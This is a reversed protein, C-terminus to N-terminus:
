VQDSRNSGIKFANDLPPVAIDEGSAISENACAAIALSWYGDEATASAGQRSPGTEFLSQMLAVDAGGHGGTAKPIAIIDEKGAADVIRINHNRKSVEIRADTGQFAIRREEYAAYFIASYNCLTGGQYRISVNHTDCIDNDRHFVCTDRLYNDHHEAELYIRRYFDPIEATQGPVDHNLDVYFRCIDKAKCGKCREGQQQDPTYFLKAGKAFVSAPRDELCWNIADFTHTGKHVLLGGSKERRAHWRRFYDGGHQWSVVDTSDVHLIRGAVGSQLIEKTRQMLPHYRFNFAMRFRRDGRAQLMDRADAITTAMPKECVVDLGLEFARVVLDRHTCDPTTVIVTNLGPHKLFEDVHTYCKCDTTGLYQRVFEVRTPNPDCLAVVHGARKIHRLSQLFGIIGRHGCGILGIRVKEITM